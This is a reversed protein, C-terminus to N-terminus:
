DLKNLTQKHSKATHHTNEPVAIQDTTTTPRRKRIFTGDSGSTSPQEPLRVHTLPWLVQYGNSITPYGDAMVECGCGPGFGIRKHARDFTLGLRTMFPIGLAAYDNSGAAVIFLFRESDYRQIYDKPGLKITVVSNRNSDTVPNQAFMTISLTPLKGWDINLKSELMAYHEWFIRKIEESNLKNSYMAKKVTIAGSDLIADILAKVVVEPFRIYRFCTQIVSYLTRGDKVRKQFEEPLNVPKDNILISKINVTHRGDPPSDVWAVSRGNTGCKAAIETNGINIFSNSTMEYPCLQLSVENNPIVGDNYLVDMATIRSHHNSLLSNGFGFIGDFEPDIGVLDPSQKRVALVPLKIDTIRTGPITVVTDSTVGKYQKGRYDITVPEGNPTHQPALSVDSSSSPLPVIISSIASDVQLNLNVKMTFCKTIDGGLEVPSRKSLRNNSQSAIGIPSELALRVAAVAQLALIVCELTILMTDLLTIFIHQIRYM